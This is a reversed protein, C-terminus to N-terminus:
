DGPGVHSSGATRQGGCTHMACICAELNTLVFTSRMENTNEQSM